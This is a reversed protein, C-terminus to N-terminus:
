IRSGLDVVQVDAEEDCPQGCRDMGAEPHNAAMRFLLGHGSSLPRLSLM